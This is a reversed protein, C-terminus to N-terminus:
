WDGGQLVSHRRIQLLLGEVISQTLATPPLSLSLSPPSSLSLMAICFSEWFKGRGEVIQILLDILSTNRNKEGRCSRSYGDPSTNQNHNNDNNSGYAGEKPPDAQVVLFRFDNFLYLSVRAKRNLFDDMFLIYYCYQAILMIMTRMRVVTQPKIGCRFHLVILGQPPTTVYM